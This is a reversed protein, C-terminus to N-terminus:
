GFGEALHLAGGGLTSTRLDSNDKNHTLLVQYNICQTEHTRNTNGPSPWPVKTKEDQLPGPAGSVSTRWSLIGDRRVAEGGGRMGWRCLLGLRERERERGEM